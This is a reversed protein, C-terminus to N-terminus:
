FIPCIINGVTILATIASAAFLVRAIRNAHEINASLTENANMTTPTNNAKM